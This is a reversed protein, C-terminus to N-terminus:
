ALEPMAPSVMPIVFTSLSHSDSNLDSTEANPQVYGNRAQLCFVDVVGIEVPSGWV